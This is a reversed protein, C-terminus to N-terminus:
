DDEMLIAFRLGRTSIRLQEFHFHDMIAEYIVSGTLIVDARNPPLGAIRMREALSLAWLQDVHGRLRERSLRTAELRDRDFTTLKAEICALISATGGTGVLQVLDESATEQEFPRALKPSIEKELFGRVWGRCQTLQHPSPPDDPHSQELLRVTGLPFSQAFHTHKNQGLIFESSGGGVDLLLLSDKALRPDSTVGQFVYEAEQDGSIVRVPLGCARAVAEILEDQNRAERAASTAVVKPQGAGMEAAKNAFEAIAKASDSIASRQLTREPYFGKGLRTQRSEEWLPRVEDGDVEGVLLKISNTGVDIMARRVSSM